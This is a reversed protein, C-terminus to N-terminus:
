ARLVMIYIKVEYYLLFLPANYYSSITNVML